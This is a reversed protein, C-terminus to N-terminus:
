DYYELDDQNPQWVWTGDMDAGGPVVGLITDTADGVLTLEPKEYM